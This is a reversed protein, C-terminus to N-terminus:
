IKSQNIGENGGKWRNKRRIHNLQQIAPIGVADYIKGSPPEIYFLTLNRQGSNKRCGIILYVPLCTYKSMLLGNGCSM